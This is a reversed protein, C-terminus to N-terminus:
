GFVILRLGTNRRVAEDRKGVHWSPTGIALYGATFDDATIEHHAGWTEVPRMARLSRAVRTAIIALSLSVRLRPM